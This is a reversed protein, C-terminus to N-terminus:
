EETKVNFSGTERYEVFRQPSANKTKRTRTIRVEMGAASLIACLDRRDKEDAIPVPIRVWECETM